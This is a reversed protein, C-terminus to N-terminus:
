IKGPLNDSYNILMRWAPIKSLNVHMDNECIQKNKMKCNIFLIRLARRRARMRAHHFM